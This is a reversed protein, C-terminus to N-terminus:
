NHEAGVKFRYPPTWPSAFVTAGHAKAWKVANVYSKWNSEDPNIRIRMINYGMGDPGWLLDVQEQTYVDAWQGNMGCGGFGDIKQFRTEPDLSVSATRQACLPICGTLATAYLLTIMRKM